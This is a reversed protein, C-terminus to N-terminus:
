VRELLQRKKEEFEEQTIARLDLLQKLMRIEDFPSTVAPILASSALTPPDIILGIIGQPQLM